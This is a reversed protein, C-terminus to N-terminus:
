QNVQWILARLRDARARKEAAAQLHAAYLLPAHLHGLKGGTRESTQEMAHAYAENIKAQAELSVAEALPEQNTM